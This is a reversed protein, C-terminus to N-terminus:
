NNVYENYKVVGIRYDSDPRYDAIYRQAENIFKEYENKLTEAYDNIRIRNERYEETADNYLTQIIPNSILKKAYAGIDLGSYDETNDLQEQVAKRKIRTEIEEFEDEAMIQKNKSVALEKKLQVITELSNSRILRKAEVKSNIENMAQKFLEGQPEDFSPTKVGKIDLLIADTRM